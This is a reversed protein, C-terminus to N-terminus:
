RANGSTPPLSKKAAAASDVVEVRATGKQSEFNLQELKRTVSDKMQTLSLVEDNM